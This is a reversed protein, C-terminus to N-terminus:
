LKHFEREKLYNFLEVAFKEINEKTEKKNGAISLCNLRMSKLFQKEMYNEDPEQNEM